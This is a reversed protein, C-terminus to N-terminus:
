SKTCDKPSFSVTGADLDYAVLFNMQALNGYIPVPANRGADSFTFCVADEDVRVFSSLPGLKVDGGKFHVTLDPINLDDSSSYCPSLGLDSRDMKKGGIAKEVASSVESYMEAPLYTLTTGSDIIINGETDDNADPAIITSGKYTIREDGVSISELTLFYFGKSILPTKVAGSGSVVADRGFSIKGSSNSFIPVLCYSFKKEDLQSVLSLAGGGLGVLGSSSSDFTGSSDHACGFAINKFSSGSKNSGITVTETSLDGSTQSGDGYAYSYGCTSGDESCSSAEELATCSSSKCSVKKYTSSKRPDFIPLDQKYCQTCPLCQTWVLDSGTDAIGRFRAPPTGISADMLYSGGGSVIQTQIKSGGLNSLVSKFHNLRKSSRELADHLRDFYTKSADRPILDVTVGTSELPHLVLLLFIFTFSFASLLPQSKKTFLAM